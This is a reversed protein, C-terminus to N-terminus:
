VISGRELRPPTVMNEVQLGAKSFWYELDQQDALLHMKKKYFDERIKSVLSNYSRRSSFKWAPHRENLKVSRKLNELEQALVISSQYIEDLTFSSLDGRHILAMMELRKLRALDKALYAEQAGKLMQEAFTLNEYGCDETQVDPHFHRALKHYITKLNLEALIYDDSQSVKSTSNSELILQNLFNMLHSPMNKLIKNKYSECAAMWLKAMLSWDGVDMTIKFLERFLSQGRRNEKLLKELIESSVEKCYYYIARSKRNLRTLDPCERAGQVPLVSEDNANTDFFSAFYDGHTNQQGKVKETLKKKAYELRHKRLKTIIFKWDEDGSQYQLEEEKLLLDAAQLSVASNEAISHLHIQLELLTKQGQEIFLIERTEERFTLKFWNEYLFKDINLFDKQSVALKKIKKMLAATPSFLDFRIQHDNIVLLNRANPNKLNYDFPREANYM